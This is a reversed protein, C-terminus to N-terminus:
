SGPETIHFSDIMRQLTPLYYFFKTPEANYNIIYARDGKITLILIAKLNIGEEVGSYILKYAPNESLSANKDLEIIKFDRRLDQISNNAYKALTIPQIDSINDVKIDLSEINDSTNRSSPSFKVLDVLRSNNYSGSNVNEKYWNSPYQIQIGYNSNEYTLTKDNLDTYAMRGELLNYYPTTITISSITISSLSAIALM